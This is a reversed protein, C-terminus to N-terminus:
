LQSVSLLVARTRHRVLDEFQDQCRGEQVMLFLCKLRVSGPRRRPDDQRRRCELVPMAAILDAGIEVPTSSM